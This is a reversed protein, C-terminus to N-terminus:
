FPPKLIYWCLSSKPQGPATLIRQSRKWWYFPAETPFNSRRDVIIRLHLSFWNVNPKIKIIVKTQTQWVEFILIGISSSSSTAPILKASLIFWWVKSQLPWSEKSSSGRVMHSDSRTELKKTETNNSSVKCQQLFSLTIFWSRFRHDDVSM